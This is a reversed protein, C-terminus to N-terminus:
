ISDRKIFTWNYLGSKSFCTNYNLQTSELQRWDCVCLRADNRVCMQNVHTRVPLKRIWLCVMSRVSVCAVLCVCALCLCVYMLCVCVDDNMKATMM